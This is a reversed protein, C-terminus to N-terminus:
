DQRVSLHPRDNGKLCEFAYHFVCTAPDLSLNQYPTIRPAQWGDTATWELSLMHDTFHKGFVLEDNPILEKPTTTKTITLKSNDLTTLKPDLIDHAGMAYCRSQSGNVLRFSRSAARTSRFGFSSLMNIHPLLSPCTSLAIHVWDCHTL